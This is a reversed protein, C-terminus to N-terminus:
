MKLIKWLTPVFPPAWVTLSRHSLTCQYKINYYMVIDGRNYQVNPAWNNINPTPTPTPVPNPTPNPVPVPVNSNFSYNRPTWFDGCLDPDLIVQYPIYCFGALGWNRGWSNVVIFSNRSDDYGVITIAHGGVRQETSKNPVPVVGTRAVDSSMFSSYVAMGFSIAYGDSLCQKMENINQNVSYYTISTNKMGIDYVSQPPKLSFQSIVYPFLSEEVSGKTAVSQYGTRLTLGTDKDVPYNLLVRGNYYIYLRSFNKVVNTEKKL